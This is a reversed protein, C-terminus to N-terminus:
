HPPAFFRDYIGQLYLDTLSPLTKEPIFTASITMDSHLVFCYPVHLEDLRSVQAINYCPWNETNYSNRHITFSDSDPSETMVVPIIDHRKAFNVVKSFAFVICEPCDNDHYRIVLTPKPAIYNTSIIKGTTDTLETGIIETRDFLITRYVSNELFELKQTSFTLKKIVTDRISIENQYNKIRQTQIIDVILLLAVVISTIFKQPNKITFIKFSIM